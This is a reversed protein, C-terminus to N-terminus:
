VANQKMVELVPSYIIGKACEHTEELVTLVLKRCRDNIFRRLRGEEHDKLAEFISRCVDDHPPGAYGSKSAPENESMVEEEGIGGNASRRTFSLGGSTGVTLGSLRAMRQACSPRTCVAQM